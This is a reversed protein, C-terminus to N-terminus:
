EYMNIFIYFNRKKKINFLPLIIIGNFIEYLILRFFTLLNVYTEQPVSLAKLRLPCLLQHTGVGRVHQCRYSIASLNRVPCAFAQINVCPYVGTATATVNENLFVKVIETKM